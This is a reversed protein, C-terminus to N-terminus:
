QKKVPIKDFETKGKESDVIEILPRGVFAGMEVTCRIYYEKGLQIDVSEEVTTETRAWLRYMGPQTIRVTKKSKNAVRFLPEDNLNINYKIALGMMSAPRYIHLLACDDTLEYESVAASNAATVTRSSGCGTTLLSAVFMLVIGTVASRFVSKVTRSKKQERVVPTFVTCLIPAAAM